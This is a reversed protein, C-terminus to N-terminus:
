GSLGNESDLCGTREYPTDRSGDLCSSDGLCVLILVGTATTHDYYDELVKSRKLSEEKATITVM